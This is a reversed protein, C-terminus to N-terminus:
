FIGARSLTACVSSALSLIKLMDESSHSQKEMQMIHDSLVQNSQRLLEKDQNLRDVAIELSLVKDELDIVQGKLLGNSGRLDQNQNEIFEFQVRLNKNEDLLETFIKYKSEIEKYKNVLFFSGGGLMVLCIGISLSYPNKLVVGSILSAGGALAAIASTSQAITLLFKKIETPPSQQHAGLINKSETMTLVKSTKETSGSVLDKTVVEIQSLENAVIRMGAATM